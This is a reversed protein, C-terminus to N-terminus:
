RGQNMDYLRKIARMKPSDCDMSTIDDIRFCTVGDSKGYVEDVQKVTVIGGKVSEIFGFVNFTGSGDLEFRTLRGGNMCYAIFSDLVPKSIGSPIDTVNGILKKMRESYADGYELRIVDDVSMLFLGDPEGLNNYLRMVINDEDIADIKGFIFSDINDPDYYLSVLMDQKKLELLKLYM